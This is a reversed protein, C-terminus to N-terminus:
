YPKPAGTGPQGTVLVDTHSMNQWRNWTRDFLPGYSDRILLSSKSKPLLAPTNNNGPFLEIVKGSPGLITEESQTRWHNVLQQWYGNEPMRDGPRFIWDYADLPM